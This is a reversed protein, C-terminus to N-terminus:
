FHNCDKKTIYFDVSPDAVLIYNDTEYHSSIDNESDYLSFFYKNQNGQFFSGTLYHFLDNKLNTNVQISNM